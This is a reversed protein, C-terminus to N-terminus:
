QPSGSSFDPAGPLTTWKRPRRALITEVTRSLSKNTDALSSGAPMLYDLIFGGEDMAPLLDIGLARFCFFSASLWCWVPDRFWFLRIRWRIRLAREYVRILRGMFVQM